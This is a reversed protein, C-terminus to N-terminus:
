LNLINIKAVAFAHTIHEQELRLNNEHVHQAVELETAILHKFREHRASVGAVIYEQHAALTEFDMMLSRTHPFLGRLDSLIEFGHADIDGWYIVDCMSLWDIGALSHVGFGSGFIGVTNALSPLALLNILNEVILVKKPKVHERLLHAAQPLPLSLDDVKLGYLWDLQEELLRLRVIIPMDKLGFRQNFDKAAPDIAGAPLLEHLLSQLIRTNNEIFKTHVPIDLERLYVNPRPYKSFYDCVALLSDWQGQYEVVVHPNQVLWTELAPFRRRIQQVDKCFQAFETRKRLLTLYDDFTPIIIQTPITQKGQDRKNISKWAIDYGHHLAAKSSQRLEEIQCRREILDESPRGAQFTIPFLEENLLWARLVERYKRKARKIIETPTIM